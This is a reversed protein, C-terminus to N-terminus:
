AQEANFRDATPYEALIQETLTTCVTTCLALKHTYSEAFADATAPDAKLPTDAPLRGTLAESSVFWDFEEKQCAVQNQLVQFM